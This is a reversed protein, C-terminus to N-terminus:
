GFIKMWEEKATPLTFGFTAGLGKGQSTVWIKGGQAEILKKTLSMGLGTGKFYNPKGIATFPEFVRDLDKKDIGIGDDAIYITTSTRDVEAKIIIHGGDRTFKAANNLINMVIECLRLRDALVLLCKGATDLTIEQRKERLIPQIEEICQTLVETLNLKQLKIKLTRNEMNQLSLLDNTLELLRDTNRRVIVIKSKLSESVDPERELIHDIYGKISVLPTRLEHTVAVIFGDKMNELKKHETIDRVIADIGHAEVCVGDIHDITGDVKLTARPYERVWVVRKNKKRLEFEGFVPAERLRKLFAQRDAKNTYAENLNIARLEQPNAYGLIKAFQLNSQLVKGEPTARYVGVPLNNLLSVFSANSTSLDAIRSEQSRSNKALVIGTVALMALAAIRLKFESNPVSFILWDLFSQTPYLFADLTAKGVWFLTGLSFLILTTGGKM